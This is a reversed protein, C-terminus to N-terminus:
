IAAADHHQHAPRQPLQRRSVVYTEITRPWKVLGKKGPKSAKFKRCPRAHLRRRLPHAMLLAM